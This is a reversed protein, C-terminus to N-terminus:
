SFVCQPYPWLNIPLYVVVLCLSCRAQQIQAQTLRGQKALESIQEMNQMLLAAIKDNQLSEGTSSRFATSLAAIINAPANNQASTSPPVAAAAPQQQAQQPQQQQQQTENTSM